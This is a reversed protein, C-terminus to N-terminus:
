VKACHVPLKLWGSRVQIIGTADGLGNKLLDVPLGHSIRLHLLFLLLLAVPMHYRM